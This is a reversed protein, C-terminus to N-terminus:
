SGSLQPSFAQQGLYWPATEVWPTEKGSPRKSGRCQCFGWHEKWRTELGQIFLFHDKWVNKNMYRNMLNDVSCGSCALFERLARPTCYVFCFPAQLGSPSVLLWIFLYIFYITTLLPLHQTPFIFCSLLCPLTPAPPPFYHQFELYCPWPFGPMQSPSNHVLVQLLHCSGQFNIPLLKGPPPVLVHLPGLPSCM